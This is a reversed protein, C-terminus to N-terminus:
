GQKHRGWRITASIRHTDGLEDHGIYAYDISVPKLQLGGGFTLRGDDSGIRLAATHRVLYEFGAHVAVADSDGIAETRYSVDVVPTLTAELSPLEFTGAIGARLTPTIIEKRGTEAWALVTGALDRVALGTEIPIDKFIRGSIGADVGLGFANYDTGFHKFILKPAIGWRWSRFPGAWVSSEFDNAIGAYFAYEAENVWKDVEVRNTESHPQGPNELRTFAIGNVGLRIFGASVVSGDQRPVAYSGADYDVIGGFRESHMFGAEPGKVRLLGSPNWFLSWADASLATNAGGLALSRAGGGTAM